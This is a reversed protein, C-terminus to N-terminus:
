SSQGILSMSFIKKKKLKKLIPGPQDSVKMFKPAVKVSLLEPGMPKKRYFQNSAPETMRAPKIFSRRLNAGIFTKSRGDDYSEAYDMALEHNKSKESTEFFFDKFIPDEEANFYSQSFTPCEFATSNYESDFNPKSSNPKFPPTIKKHFVANWNVSSLWRHDKIEKIGLISGLRLNSEKRLLGKLLSKVETSLYKPPKIEEYLIKDYLVNRDEDWFPPLGTLMEFLFSGLSYYDLTKDYGTRKIMEPSLYEHSGCFSYYRRSTVEKALGFDILKLHGDVDILTNEPKLDRFIINKQHLYEIALVIECFYFRAQDETLRGLHHLHFFLEGGPCFDTVMM